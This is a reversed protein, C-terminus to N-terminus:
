GRPPFLTIGFRGSEKKLRAIDEASPSAPPWSAEGESACAEVFEDFGGPTCLVLYRAPADGAMMLRHPTGRPILLTEGAKMTIKEDGIDVELTGELLSITEEERDHM